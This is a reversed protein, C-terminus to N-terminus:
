ELRRTIGTQWRPCFYTATLLWSLILKHTVPATCSAPTSTQCQCHVLLFHLHHVSMSECQWNCGLPTVPTWLLRDARCLELTHPPPPAMTLTMLEVSLLCASGAKTKTAFKEMSVVSQHNPKHQVQLWYTATKLGPRKTERTVRLLNNVCMETWWATYIPLPRHHVVPPFTVTPRADCHGHM